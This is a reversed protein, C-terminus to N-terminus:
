GAIAAVAAVVAAIAALAASVLMWPALRNQSEALRLLGALADLQRDARKASADYWEAFPAKSPPAPPLPRSAEILDTRVSGIISANRGTMFSMLPSPSKLTHIYKRLTKAVAADIEAADIPEAERERRAFEDSVIGVVAKRMDDRWEEPAEDAIARARDIAEYVEPEAKGDEIAQRRAAIEERRQRVRAVLEDNVDRGGQREDSM